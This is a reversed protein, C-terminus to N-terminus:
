AAQDILGFAAVGRRRLERKLGDARMPQGLVMAIVSACWEDLMAGGAAAFDDSESRLIGGWALAQQRLALHAPHPGAPDLRDLRTRGLVCALTTMASDNAGASRAVDEVVSALTVFPDTCTAAGRTEDDRDCPEDSAASAEADLSDDRLAADISSASEPPVPERPAPEFLGAELAEPLAAEPLAASEDIADDFSLDEVIEIDDNVDDAYVVPPTPDTPVDPPDAPEVRDFLSASTAPESVPAGPAPRECVPAGTLDACFWIAGRHLGPNDNPLEACAALLSDSVAAEL